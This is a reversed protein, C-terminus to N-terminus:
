PSSSARITTTLSFPGSGWMNLARIKFQYDVGQVILTSVQYSTFIFPGTVGTLSAWAVGATGYDWQLEYNTIASYGTNLGTLAVWDLVIQVTSTAANRTPAAM